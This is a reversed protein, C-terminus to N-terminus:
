NSARKVLKWHYLYLPASVILTTAGDLIGKVSNHRNQSSQSAKAVDSAAKSLNPDVYGPDPYILAVGSRLASAVAVLSVLLAILCVAYLYLSRWDVSRRSYTPPLTPKPILEDSM